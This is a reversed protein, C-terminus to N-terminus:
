AFEKKLSLLRILKNETFKRLPTDLDTAFIFFKFHGIHHKKVATFRTYPIFRKINNMHEYIRQSIKRGTEGIYFYKCLTCYIVYVCGQSDCNSNNKILIASNLRSDLDWLDNTKINYTCFM